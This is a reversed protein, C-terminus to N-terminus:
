VIQDSRVGDAQAKIRQTEEAISSARYKPLASMWNGPTAEAEDAAQMMTEAVRPARQAVPSGILQLVAGNGALRQLELMANPKPGSQRAAPGLASGKPGSVRQEKM